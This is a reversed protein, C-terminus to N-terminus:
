AAHITLVQRVISCAGGIQVRAKYRKMDEDDGTEASMHRYPRFGDEVMAKATAYVEPTVGDDFRMCSKCGGWYTPNRANDVTELPELQGGCRSCVGSIGDACEQKSIMYDM